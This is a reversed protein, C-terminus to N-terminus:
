VLMKLLYSVKPHDMEKTDLEGKSLSKKAEFFASENRWNTIHLKFLYKMSTLTAKFIHWTIKKLQQLGDSTVPFRRLNIWFCLWKRLNECEGQNLNSFYLILNYKHTESYGPRAGRSHSSKHWLHGCLFPLFIANSGLTQGPMKAIQRGAM